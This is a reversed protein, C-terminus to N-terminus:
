GTHCNDFYIDKFSKKKRLISVASSITKNIILKLIHILHQTLFYVCFYHSIFVIPLVNYANKKDRM